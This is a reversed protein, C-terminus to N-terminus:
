WGPYQNPFFDNVEGAREFKNNAYRKEDMVKLLSGGFYGNDKKHHEKRCINIRSDLTVAKTFM